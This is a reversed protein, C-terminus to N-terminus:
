PSTAQSGAGLSNVWRALKSKHRAAANPHIVGKCALRDLLSVARRFAEEAEERNSAMRVKKIATRMASKRARNRMRARLSQRLRKASSRLHPM